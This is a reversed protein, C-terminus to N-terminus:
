QFINITRSFWIWDVYAAGSTFNCNVPFKDLEIFMHRQDVFLWPLGREDMKPAM